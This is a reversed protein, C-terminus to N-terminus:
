LFIFPVIHINKERTTVYSLKGAESCLKLLFSYFWKSFDSPLTITYSSCELKPATFFHESM